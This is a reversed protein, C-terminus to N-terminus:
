GQQNMKAKLAALADSDSSSSTNLADDIESDLSRNENAIEAYSDARAEQENVKDKMKELMSVTGTSDIQAMQKNIRETAKSVKHRAKLTRLENEWTNIQSKLKQVNQQMTASAKEHTVLEQKLTAAHNDAQDKQRLAETALRDAEASDMEGAQAKKLLAMAKKEYDASKNQAAEMERRSRIVLTKIEALGKLSEDLDKKLDRIGQETMRIPDELKDIAGHVEAEGVKFLRKFASIM